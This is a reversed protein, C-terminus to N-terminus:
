RLAVAIRHRPEIAKRSQGYRVLQPTLLKELCNFQEKTLRFYQHFIEPSQELDRVLTSYSGYMERNEFLPHVWFRPSRRVPVQELRSAAVTLLLLDDSEDESEMALMEDEM